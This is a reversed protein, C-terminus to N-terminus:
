GPRLAAMLDGRAGYGVDTVGVFLALECLHPRLREAVADRDVGPEAFAGLVRLVGAARDTKLDLRGVLREGSLVPLVYYGYVRESAPVYIEIRYDFDWLRSARARNWVVPDFPSLATTVDVSRPLRVQPHM